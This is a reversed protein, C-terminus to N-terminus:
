EGSVEKCDRLGAEYGENFANNTGIATLVVIIICLIIPGLADVFNMKM